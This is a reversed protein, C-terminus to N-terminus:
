ITYIRKSRTNDNRKENLILILQVTKHYSNASGDFNFDPIKKIIPLLKEESPQKSFKNELSFSAILSSLSLTEELCQKLLFFNLNEEKCSNYLEECQKRLLNSDREVQKYNRILEELYAQISVKKMIM